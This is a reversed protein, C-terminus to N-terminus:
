SSRFFKMFTPEEVPRGLQQGLIQQILCREQTGFNMLHVFVEWVYENSGPVRSNCGEDTLNSVYERLWLQNNKWRKHVAQKSQYDAPKLPHEEAVREGKLRKLWLLEESIQRLLLDRLSGQSPQSELLFQEESLEDVAEWLRSYMSYHYHLIDRVFTASVGQEMQSGQRHDNKIALKRKLYHLGRSLLQNSRARAMNQAPFDFPPIEQDLFPCLKEWGDGRTIDMVLLDGPRDKFYEQVKRNHEEYRRIYVDENGRAARVGYIWEHIPIHQDKFHKVISNIWKDTPRVTLIFKSGPYRGDLEKYLVPWPTDQAADFRDALDYAQDVVHDAIDPDHAGFFGTVNYGLIYFAAALSSTATKHFGIGFVKKKPKM